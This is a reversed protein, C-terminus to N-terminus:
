LKGLSHSINVNPLTDTVIGTAVTINNERITFQQGQPMVMKSLLTLIVQGHEGPMIMEVNEELDIRCAVNWTKSFLQQCYKGVIPKSRGGEAKSLFYVSAKFRNSLAVTKAACLLMGRKVDSLKVGRVLAGVNEGAVAQPVSKKFVQIDSVTTKITQDFGLLEAEANKKMVGRSLTGILVTGRGPVTFVNDIPLMFPSAFDREPPSVYRDLTDLLKKISQKGMETDNGNLAELASGTVVPSNSGDFGFNDLLDRVEIEVLELVENDVLDAKNVFVVIKQVGVQKALLLHERTQPMQGDTAAVVLIACDMQSAGSIMNKIYDAHGPCDTHAYHRNKTSYGVHCANITIGRAKEEPARDIQDYSIYKALGDEQLVKTIAATLTTKGHDVHGITGVNIHKKVNTSSFRQLCKSIMHMQNVKLNRSVTSRFRCTYITKAPPGCIPVAIALKVRRILSFTSM